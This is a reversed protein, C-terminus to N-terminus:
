LLMASNFYVVEFSFSLLFHEAHFKPQFEPVKITKQLASKCLQFWLCAAQFLRGTWCNNMKSLSVLSTSISAPQHLAFNWSRTTDKSSFFLDRLKMLAGFAIKFHPPTPPFAIQGYDLAKIHFPAWGYPLYLLCLNALSGGQLSLPSTFIIRM